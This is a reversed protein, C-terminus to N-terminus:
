PRVQLSKDAPSGSVVDYVVPPLESGTGGIVSFGFGETGNKKLKVYKISKDDM